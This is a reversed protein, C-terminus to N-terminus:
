GFRKETGAWPAQTLRVTFGNNRMYVEPGDGNKAATDYFRLAEAAISRPGLMAAYRALRRRTIKELTAPM